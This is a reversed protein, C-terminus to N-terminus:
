ACNSSMSVWKIKIIRMDERELDGSLFSTGTYISERREKTFTKVKVNEERFIIKSPNLHTKGLANSTWTSSLCQVDAGNTKEIM